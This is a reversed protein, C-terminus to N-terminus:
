VQKWFIPVLQEEMMEEMQNLNLDSHELERSYRYVIEVVDQADLTKENKMWRAALLERILLVSIVAMQAKAYARGDYVAGCFYTSLFYILLQECQVSWEPMHVYLWESFERQVETYHKQGKRYLLAEAERLQPEWDDRLRELQDLNWFMQRAFRFQQEENDQAMQIKKQVYAKAAKTQYRELVEQCSFIEGKKIRVQMDHAIALILGARLSMPKERDQLIRIMLDRGDLLESYLFPDFDEYEEEGGKEYSLFRVPEKKALLIKAVEPCSVSLTIERVNEFEEVHRPYCRCTRCLSDKGLRTYMECLNDAKLFACRKDESQRFTGEKWDVSSRLKKRFPGRVKRYRELARQDAVIQWGACCTDECRDAVCQFQHYYDPITYLM